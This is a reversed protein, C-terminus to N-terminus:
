GVGKAKAKGVGAKRQLVEKWVASSNYERIPMKGYPFATLDLASEAEGVGGAKTVLEALSYRRLYKDNDFLFDVAKGFRPHYRCAEFQQIWRLSDDAGDWHSKFGEYCLAKGFVRAIPRIGVYLGQKKYSVDHHNQLFSVHTRSVGGKDSSVKLGLELAVESVSDLSWPDHFAVVGDDGQVLHMDVSNGMRHSIYHFAFLQVLSDILNTVGSGSPVGGNRDQLIGEPTLLGIELFCREVYDIVPHAKSTFWSRLIAFIQEILVRPVSADFRSFDVSLIDQRAHLMVETVAHNVVTPENWASFELKSRLVHLLPIQIQLELLTIYHPYGWVTRQKPTVDLGKMQGRWYLMCPDPRGKFGSRSVHRALELVQIRYEADATAFPLGLNTGRPMDEYATNLDVLRVATSVLGALKNTAYDWSDWSPHIDPQSFYDYVVEKREDYPLQISEPGIGEIADAEVADLWDYGTPFLWQRMEDIRSVRGGIPDNRDAILPTVWDKLRGVKTSALSQAVLEEAEPSLSELYAKSPLIEM